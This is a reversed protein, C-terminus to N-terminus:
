LRYPAGRRYPAHRPIYPVIALSHNHGSSLSAKLAGNFVIGGM